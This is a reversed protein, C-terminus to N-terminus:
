EIYISVEDGEGVGFAELAAHLTSTGSNCGIGYKQNHKEAFANELRETFAGTESAGFGNALVESVYKLEDTQFRWGKNM